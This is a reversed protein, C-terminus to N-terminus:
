NVKQSRSKQFLLRHRAPKWDKSTREQRTTSCVLNLVYAHSSTVRHLVVASVKTSGGKQHRSWEPAVVIPHPYTEGLSIHAASLAGSSLLWPSHANAGTLSEIEPVWLRLFDGNPDYDM